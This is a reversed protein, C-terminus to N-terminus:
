KRFLQAVADEPEEDVIQMLTPYPIAGQERNRLFQVIDHIGSDDQLVFFGLPDSEAVKTLLSYNGGIIDNGLLLYKDTTPTVAVNLTVGLKDTLKFKVKPLMGEYQQSKGGVGRFTYSTAQLKTATEPMCDLLGKSIITTTSGTDVIARVKYTDFLVNITPCNIRIPCEQSLDYKTGHLKAFIEQRESNM